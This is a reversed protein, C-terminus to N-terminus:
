QRFSRERILSKPTTSVVGYKGLRDIVSKWQQTNRQHLIAPFVDTQNQSGGNNKNVNQKSVRSAM